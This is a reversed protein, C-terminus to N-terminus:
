GLPPGFEDPPGATELLSATLSSVASLALLRALPSWARPAVTRLFVAAASAHVSVCHPCTVLYALKDPANQVVWDRPRDLITDETVLRTVRWVALADAAFDLAETAPRRHTHAM